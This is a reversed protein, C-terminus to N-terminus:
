DGSGTDDWYASLLIEDEEAEHRRLRALLLRTRAEISRMHRAHVDRLAEIRAELDAAEALLLDHERALTELRHAFQPFSTPFERFLPGERESAFHVRFTESLAALRDRLEELAAADMGARGELCSELESLRRTCEKHEELARELERALGGAELGLESM